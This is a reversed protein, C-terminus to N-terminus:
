KLLTEYSDRIAAELWKRCRVVLCKSDDGKIVTRMDGVILEPEYLLRLQTELTTAKRTEPVTLEFSVYNPGSLEREEKALQAGKEAGDVAADLFSCLAQPVLGMLLKTNHEWSVYFAGKPMNIQEAYRDLFLQLTKVLDFLETKSARQYPVIKPDERPVDVKRVVELIRVLNAARDVFLVTAEGQVHQIRAGVQSTVAQAMTVVTPVNGGKLTYLLTAWENPSLNALEEEKILPARECASYVPEVSFARAANPEPFLTLGNAGLARQCLEFLVLKSPEKVGRLSLKPLPALQRSDYRVSVEGRTGFESILDLAGFEYFDREEGPLHTALFDLSPGAKRWDAKQRPPDQSSVGACLALMAATLVFIGTLKRM